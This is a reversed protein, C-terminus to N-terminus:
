CISIFPSGKIWNRYYYAWYKWFFENGHLVGLVCFVTRLEALLPSLMLIHQAKMWIPQDFTLVPTVGYTKGHNAVFRLSSYICLENTPDLDIM